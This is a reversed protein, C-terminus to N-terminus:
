VSELQKGDLRAATRLIMASALERRAASMVRLEFKTSNLVTPGLDGSLYSATFQARTM